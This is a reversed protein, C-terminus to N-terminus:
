LIADFSSDIVSNCFLVVFDEDNRQSCSSKVGHCIVFYLCYTNVEQVKIHLEEFM